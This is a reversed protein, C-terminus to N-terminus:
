FTRALSLSTPQMFCSKRMIQAIDVTLLITCPPIYLFLACAIERQKKVIIKFYVRKGISTDTATATAHKSCSGSVNRTAFPVRKM